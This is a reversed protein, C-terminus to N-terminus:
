AIQVMKCIMFRRGDEVQYACTYLCILKDGYEATVGTPYQARDLFSQVGALFAEESSYQFTIMEQVDTYVSALIQLEYIATPTYLRLVPHELYYEYSDYLDLKGFMTKNRMKHGYIVTLDDVFPRNRFDAYLTGAFNWTGDLLRHLYYSNDRGQVIPLNIEGDQGYLWGIVDKNKELLLPFNVDLWPLGGQPDPMTEGEETEKKGIGEGAHPKTSSPRDIPLEEWGSEAPVGPRVAQTEQPGEQAPAEQTVVMPYFKPGDVVKVVDNGLSEYMKEAKRYEILKSGVQYASYIMVGVLLILLINYIGITRKKKKKAPTLKRSKVDTNETKNNEEAM